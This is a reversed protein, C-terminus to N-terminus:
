IGAGQPLRSPGFCSEFRPVQSPLSRPCFASVSVASSSVVVGAFLAVDGSMWCVSPDNSQLALSSSSSSSCCNFWVTCLSTKIYKPSCLARYLSSFGSDHHSVFAARWGAGDSRRDEAAPFAADFRGASGCDHAQKKEKLLTWMFVSSSM